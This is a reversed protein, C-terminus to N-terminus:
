CRAGAHAAGAETGEISAASAVQTRAASDKLVALRVVALDFPAGTTVMKILEPTTGFRIVLKHGSTKEFQAALEKTPATM